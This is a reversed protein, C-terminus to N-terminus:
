FAILGRWSRDSQTTARVERGCEDMKKPGLRVVRAPDDSQIMGPAPNDAVRGVVPMEASQPPPVGYHDAPCFLGLALAAPLRLRLWSPTVFM